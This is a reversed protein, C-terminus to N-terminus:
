CGMDYEEAAPAAVPIAVPTTVSTGGIPAYQTKLINEYNEFAKKSKPDVQIASKAFRKANAINNNELEQTSQNIYKTIMDDQKIKMENANNSALYALAISIGLLSAGVVSSIVKM